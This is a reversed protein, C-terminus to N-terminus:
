GHVKSFLANIRGISEGWNVNKNPLVVKIWVDRGTVEFVLAEALDDLEGKVSVRPEDWGSIRVEGRTVGISVIADGPISRSEDVQEGARATLCSLCAYIVLLLTKTKM